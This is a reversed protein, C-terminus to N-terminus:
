TAAVKLDASECETGSASARLNGFPGGGRATMRGARLATAFPPGGYPRLIERESMKPPRGRRAERRRSVSSKRVAEMLIGSEVGFCIKWENSEQVAKRRVFELGGARRSLNEGDGVSVHRAV